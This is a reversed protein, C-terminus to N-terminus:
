LDNETLQEAATLIAKQAALCGKEYSAEEDNRIGGTAYTEGEAVVAARRMGEKMANLQEIPMTEKILHKLEREQGYSLGFGAKTLACCLEHAYDEATRM